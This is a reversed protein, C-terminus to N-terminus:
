LFKNFEEETIVEAGYKKAKDIKEQVAGEGIILYNIGKKISSNTGGNETILEQMKKRPISLAGTFAFIKGNLSGSHKEEKKMGINFSILKDLLM